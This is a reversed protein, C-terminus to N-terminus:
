RTLSVPLAKGAAPKLEARRGFSQAVTCANADNLNGGARKVVEDKTTRGATVEGILFDYCPTIAKAQEERGKLRQTDKNIAGVICATQKGADKITDCHAAVAQQANAPFSALVSAGAIAAAATVAFATKRFSAPRYLM